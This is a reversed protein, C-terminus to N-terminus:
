REFREYSIKFSSCVPCSFVNCIEKLDQKASTEGCDKCKYLYVWDQKQESM